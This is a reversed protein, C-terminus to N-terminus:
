LTAVTNKLVMQLSTAESANDYFATFPMEVVIGKPGSIIPDKEEYVVEPITIVLSENGAGGAGTGRSLTIEISSETFAVAKGYLVVEEFLATLIGAVACKGEPIARREGLGGIVYNGGDLDNSVDFAIKTVTAIAGGGEKISAEFSEFPVHGLDTPTADFSSTGITRKKGLFDLNFGVYGDSNIEFSGKNIRVGNYLFYEPIALDLFAKELCLSVPLAGVKITHTYPPGAGSTCAGLLHKLLTGMYPNLETNINGGIDKSGRTPKTLDRTLRIINTRTLARKASIGESIFPLVLGNTSSPTTGFATEVDVMIRANAGAAQSM